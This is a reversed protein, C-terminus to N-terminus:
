QRDSTGRFLWGVSRSIVNNALLGSLLMRGVGPRRSRCPPRPEGLATGWEWVGSGAWVLPWGAESMPASSGCAGFACLNTGSQVGGFTV